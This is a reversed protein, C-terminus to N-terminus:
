ECDTVCNYLERKAYDMNRNFLTGIITAYITLSGEKTDLQHCVSTFPDSVGYAKASPYKSYIMARCAPYSFLSYNMGEYNERPLITSAYVFEYAPLDLPIAETLIVIDFDQNNLEAEIAQRKRKTKAWDINLTGITM